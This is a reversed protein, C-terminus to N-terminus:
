PHEHPHCAHHYDDLVASIHAMALSQPDLPASSVDQNWWNDPPFLRRNGLDDNLTVASTGTGASPPAPTPATPSSPTTGLNAPNSDDSCAHALAAFGTLLLARVLRRM